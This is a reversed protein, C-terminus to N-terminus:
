KRELEKELEDVQAAMDKVIVADLHFKLLSVLAAATAPELHGARLENAIQTLAQAVDAANALPVPPAEPPPPTYLGLLEAEDKKVALAARWDGSELAKAYLLRRQALHLRLLKGRDAETTQALLDDARTAYNWLQREQVNWGNVAAYQVVDHFEAGALRLALVQAVREEIQARSARTAKM